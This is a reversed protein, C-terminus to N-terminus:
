SYVINQSFDFEVTCELMHDRLVTKTPRRLTVPELAFGTNVEEFIRRTVVKFM